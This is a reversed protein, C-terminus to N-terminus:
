SVVTAVQLAVNTQALLRGNVTSGTNLTISKKGLVVGELHSGVGLTVTGSVMWVINSAKAGGSLIVQGGTTFALNGAIQFIWTDTSSGSIFFSTAANVSTGWSYLGPALVLGGIGGGLLNLFNPNVRGTADLFATQLDSIATTLQSPTPSKYSAAYVKGTVQKSTSFTGSTDLALSFGTLGGSSIPSVGINGTISSPPVTSIGSESLVAFTGATRLNVAAPGIALASNAISLLALCLATLNANFLM